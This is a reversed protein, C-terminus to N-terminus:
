KDEKYKKWMRKIKGAMEKRLWHPEIVEMDEGNWLLEQQFDFTPRLFYTFVSYEDNREIEKQSEHLPLDRIYNAQGWSVKLKVAQKEVNIDPIIGFCGSFYEDVDWDKPMVFTEDKKSLNVIRDLSYIRRSHSQGVMYWRQRFLKVCLPIVDFTHDEDRWYSHYTINLLNNGKMAEIIPQLYEQGSPVNELFIRDKLQKNEMILNSVSITSLLWSRLGGNKIDDINEIYYKYGGKRECLIVLGFMEEAEHIWTHFTRKPLELGESIDDDLWKENIEEYSIYKNKYITDVLWVYKNLLNISMINLKQM